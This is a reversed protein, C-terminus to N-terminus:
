VEFNESKLNQIVWINMKPAGMDPNIATAFKVFNPDVKKPNRCGMELTYQRLAKCLRIRM